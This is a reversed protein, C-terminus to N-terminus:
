ISRQNLWVFHILLWNQALNEIALSLLFSLLFCFELLFDLHLYQYLNPCESWFYGPLICLLGSDIGSHIFLIVHALYLFFHYKEKLQGGVYLLLILFICCFFDEEDCLESSLLGFHVLQLHLHIQQFCEDSIMHFWSFYFKFNM